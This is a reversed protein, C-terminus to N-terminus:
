GVDPRQAAGVYFYRNGWRKSNLASSVQSVKRLAFLALSRPRMLLDASLRGVAPWAVESIRYELATLGAREFLMRQGAVTAQQVHYPPMEKPHATSLRHSARIVTSFLCPGAELPGQALLWGTPRLLSVLERLIDVPAALHEIVDGLHIVDAPVGTSQRLEALSNFVVCGTAIAALRAIDAHFEVGVATWGLTRAARMLSGSGCGFDVFMGPPRERLRALVREPEKPDEITPDTACASSYAWGYMKALAGADPM